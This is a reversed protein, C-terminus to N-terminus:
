RGEEYAARWFQTYQQSNDNNVQSGRLSATKVSGEEQNPSAEKIENDGSEDTNSDEDEKYDSTFSAIKVFESDDKNALVDFAEAIVVRQSEEFNDIFANHVIASCAKKDIGLEAFKNVLADKLPNSLLGKLQQQGALEMAIRAKSVAQVAAKRILTNNQAAAKNYYKSVDMGPNKVEDVIAKPSITEDADKVFGGNMDSNIESIQASATEENTPSVLAGTNGVDKFGGEGYLQAEKQSANGLGKIEKLRALKEKIEDISAKKGVTASMPDGGEAQGKADKQAPADKRAVAKGKEPKYDKLSAEKVDKSEADEDAKESSDNGKSEKDKKESKDKKPKSDIKEITDLESEAGGIEKEAKEVLQDGKLMDDTSLDDSTMSYEEVLSTLTELGTKLEDIVSKLNKDEDFSETFGSFGFPTESPTDMSLADDMGASADEMEPEFDKLADMGVKTLFSRKVQKRAQRVQSISLALQDLFASANKTSAKKIAGDELILDSQKSMENSGINLLSNTEQNVDNKSSTSSNALKNFYETIVKEERSPIREKINSLSWGKYNILRDIVYDFDLEKLDYKVANPYGPREEDIETYFDIYIDQLDTALRKEARSEIIDKLPEEPDVVEPNPASSGGGLPPNKSTGEPRGPEGHPKIDPTGGKPTHISDMQQPTRSGPGSEPTFEIDSPMNEGQILKFIIIFTFM